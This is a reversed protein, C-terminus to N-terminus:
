DLAILLESTLVGRLVIRLWFLQLLQGADDQHRVVSALWAGMEAFATNHPKRLRGHWKVNPIQTNHGKFPHGAEAFCMVRQLPRNPIELPMEFVAM